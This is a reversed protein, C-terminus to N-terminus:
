ISYINLSPLRKGRSTANESEAQLSNKVKNDGVVRGESGLSGAEELEGLSSFSGLDDDVPVLQGQKGVPEGGASAALHAIDTPPPDIEVPAIKNSSSISPLVGATVHPM